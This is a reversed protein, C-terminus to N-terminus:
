LDAAMGDSLWSFCFWFRGTPFVLCRATSDGHRPDPHPHLIIFPLSWLDDRYRTLPYLPARACNKSKKRVSSLGSNYALIFLRFLL